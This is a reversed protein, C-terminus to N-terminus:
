YRPPLLNQLVDTTLMNCLFHCEAIFDVIGAWSRGFRSEAKSMSQLQEDFLPLAIEISHLHANWLSSLLNDMGPTVNFNMTDAIPTNNLRKKLDGAYLLADSSSRYNCSNKTNDLLNFFDTWPKIAEPCQNASVCFKKEDPNFKVSIAPALGAEVAGLYPIVSLYYNMDGWWADPSINTINSAFLRGSYFQWGHQLCLGWLINGPYLKDNEPQHDLFQSHFNDSDWECHNINEILFKYLSMRQLYDWVDVILEGELNSPFFLTNLPSVERWLPPLINSINQLRNSNYENSYDSFTALNSLNKILNSDSELSFSQYLRM